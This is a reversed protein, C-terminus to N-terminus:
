SQNDELGEKHNGKIARDPVITVDSDTQNPARRVGLTYVRTNLLSLIVPM